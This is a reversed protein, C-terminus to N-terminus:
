VKPLSLYNHNVRNHNCRFCMSSITGSRDVVLRIKTKM